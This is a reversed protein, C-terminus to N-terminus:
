FWNFNGYFWNLNAHYESRYELLHTWLVVMFVWISIFMVGVNKISLVLHFQWSFGNLKCFIHESIRTFTDMFNIKGRLPQHEFGM